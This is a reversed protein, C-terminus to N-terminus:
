EFIQRCMNKVAYRYVLYYVGGIGLLVLLCVALGGIENTTIKGDNGFMLLAYLLYMATMGVLAPIKFVPGAQGKIEKRIFGPSAGLRKLDEFVYRNNLVITMCRTYEIIVAALSCIIAIFLFMMLFVAFTRNFETKDLIRSKPMYKWYMRFDSTNPESYSIKTMRTTDGWYVEGMQNDYYKKVRDYYSPQECEPGFSSVLTYFFDQSFEYSDQGDINFVATQGMWEKSLGAAITEYDENNLVYYGLSDMLFDYHAYGGFNTPLSQFTVMNTLVTATDELYYLGTEDTNSIAMYDGKQVSIKEGTIREYSDQSLFRGESKLPMREYHFSNGDEVESIGDMGLSLYPVQRFDAIALGYQAALASIEEEGPIEQDARYHYYYDYPRSKIEMIRDVSMMPLYFIGFASGAILVTSVLLNNVTQKGQFKMMSRAILNKYPHKKRSRWGNVVTHLMIMYLGVFVPAYLINLWAPAYYNLVRHCVVPGMYGLVAGGLVLGIGVPGCWRGMERVPENRHEEHMVEMINTRKLYRYANLCSFGVVIVFFVASLYLCKFDLTLAMQNSDTILKFSNWLIWVFPFGAVIGLLSSIASLAFVEGLLGPLLKRGSAGLAMLTGLQKAKKRFFLGSAYITFVVCGFLALVFIAIMQKRSDGGEPLVLLVTPSFMMASYATILLLSVFNCFLYLKAQKADAKQLKRELSKLTMM